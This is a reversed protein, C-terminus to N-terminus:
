RVTDFATALEITTGPWMALSAILSHTTKHERPILGGGGTVWWKRGAYLAAHVYTKYNKQDGNDEDQFVPVSIKLITGEEIEPAIINVAETLAETLTAM